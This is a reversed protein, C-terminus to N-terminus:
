PEGQEWACPRLSLPLSHTHTGEADQNESLAITESSSQSAPEASFSTWCSDSVPVQRHLSPAHKGQGEEQAYTHVCVYLMLM